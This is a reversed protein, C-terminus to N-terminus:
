YKQWTRKMALTTSLNRTSASTIIICAISYKFTIQIQNELKFDVAVQFKRFESHNENYEM